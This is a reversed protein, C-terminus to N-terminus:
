KTEDERDLEEQARAFEEEETETEGPDNPHDQRPARGPWPSGAQRAREAETEIREDLAALRGLPGSLEPFQDEALRGNAALRALAEGLECLLEKRQRRLMAVDIQLKAARSTQVAVERVTDLQALAARMFGGLQRKLDDEGKAM